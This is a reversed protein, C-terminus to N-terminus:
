ITLLGAQVRAFSDRLKGQLDESQQVATKFPEMSVYGSYGAAQLAM